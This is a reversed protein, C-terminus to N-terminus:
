TEASGDLGLKAAAADCGPIAATGSRLQRLALM